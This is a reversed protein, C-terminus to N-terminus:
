ARGLGTVAGPVAETVEGDPWRLRVGPEPTLLGCRASTAPGAPAASRGPEDATLMAFGPFCTFWDGVTAGAPRPVAAVDLEAGCGSAEALMGLTGVLGAMSVDKAAEPLGRGVMSTMAALEAATRRSSSDWQRGEYGQRWGGGLDATLVVDLGARGAGRVPAGTRGLATVSLSPAVGLQTHGGIVPMGFAEAGARIGALVRAAHAADPSGLADLLGAPTAGMAALDNAGVLVGCWGAWEPDAAVMAPLIGDVSALVDTAARPHGPLPAADDGLFGAGGPQLGALLAGLPNKTAATLRAIRSVPWRVLDHRTGAVTVSRIATWGLREFLATNGPLVTAEFRLAGHSEAEVCAARVLASGVGLGARAAPSVVLRGGQWWGPSVEYLRVGGVVAGGHRAVLVVASEDHEDLDGGARDDFLGLETCFAARRLARYAVLAADDALDIELASPAPGLLAECMETV